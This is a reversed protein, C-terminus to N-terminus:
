TGRRSRRSDIRRQLELEREHSAASRASFGFGGILVTVVEPPRRLEANSPVASQCYSCRGAEASATDLGAYILGYEMDCAWADYCIRGPCFRLKGHKRVSRAVSHRAM